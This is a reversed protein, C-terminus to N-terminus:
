FLSIQINETKPSKAAAPISKVRYQLIDDIGCVSIEKVSVPKAGSKPQKIVQVGQTNKTSKLPVLSTNLCLIKNTDTLVAIKKSINSIM